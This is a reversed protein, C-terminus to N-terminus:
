WEQDFKFKSNNTVWLFPFSLVLLLSLGWIVGSSPIQVQAVNTCSALVRVVSIGREWFQLHKKCPPPHLLPPYPLAIYRQSDPMQSLTCWWTLQMSCQAQCMHPKHHWIVDAIQSTNCVFLCLASAHIIWFLINLFCGWIINLIHISMTFLYGGNIPHTKTQRHITDWIVHPSIEM